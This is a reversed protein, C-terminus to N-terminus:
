QGASRESPTAAKLAVGFDRLALLLFQLAAVGVGTLILLRFPWVPMTMMGTVGIFQGAAVDRSFIGWTSWAILGCIAVGILNWLAGMAAAARPAVEALWGSIFEIRALRGHRVATGLQLFVIMVLTIASLESILPLSSGLLNRAVIDACIMAMLGAIMATGLAALGDVLGNWIRAAKPPLPGNQRAGRDPGTGAM